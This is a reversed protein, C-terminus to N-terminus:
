DHLAALAGVTSENLDRDFCLVALREVRERPLTDRSRGKRFVPEDLLRSRTVTARVAEPPVALPDFRHLQSGADQPYRAADPEPLQELSDASRVRRDTVGPAALVTRVLICAGRAVGSGIVDGAVGM